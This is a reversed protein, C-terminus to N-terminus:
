WEMWSNSSGSGDDVACIASIDSDDSVPIGRLVSPTDEATKVSGMDGISEVKDWSFVCCICSFM